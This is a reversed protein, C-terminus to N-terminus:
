FPLQADQPPQEDPNHPQWAGSDEFAVTPVTIPPHPEAQPPSPEAQVAPQLAAVEAPAPPTPAFQQAGQGAVLDDGTRTLWVSGFARDFGSWAAGPQAEQELRDIIGLKGGLNDMMHVLLAERTQPVVPSGHELQGHHALIIHLFALRREESVGPIGDLVRGLREHGLVIEGRLRGADTLEVVDEGVFEYADLKGIDHILAAAVALDRDVGPFVAAAGSVAEAVTLCHELLGHRYAQHVRKAAPAIRYAAWTDTNEGLVAELVAAMDPAKVSEILARLRAELEPVPVPPGNRLEAPDYTGDQAAAFAELRLQAGFREHVEFRGAVRVAGGIQLQSEASDVDDWIMAQLTGSKDGFTVKLFDRGDKRARREVGRVLLVHEVRSGDTLDRIAM